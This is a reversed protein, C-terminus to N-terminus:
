SLLPKQIIHRQLSLSLLDNPSKHREGVRLSRIHKVYSFLNRLPGTKTLLVPSTPHVLLMVFTGLKMSISVVFPTITNLCCSPPWPLRCGSLLTYCSVQRIRCGRFHIASLSSVSTIGNPLVLTYSPTSMVHFRNIHIMPSNQRTCIKTITAIIWAFSKFASTSFPEM